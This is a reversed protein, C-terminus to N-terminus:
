QQKRQLLQKALASQTPKYKPKNQKGQTADPNDMIGPFAANILETALEMAAASIQDNQELWASLGPILSSKDAPWNHKRQQRKLEAADDPLGALEAELAQQAAKQRDQEAAQEARQLEANLDRQMAGYGVTTKAGFGLWNFAHEFAAELLPKWANNQSLDLAEHRLMSQNCGVLFSFGTDPPVTLFKIPIPSRSDHPPESKQYYHQQHPTMIEVMLKNGRIQPIVDHFIVAGRRANNTDEAGFVVTIAHETWGHTDGWQGSALERASQRLVGKVGSGPLYPLGYPHLFAFGNELPHDNGLGTTFPATSVADFSATHDNALMNRISAAQRLALAHMFACDTENLATIRNWADKAAADNKEWLDPFRGRKGQRLHDIAADMGENRLLDKLQRGEPSNNSAMRSTHKEQDTRDTWIPLLLGFRLAPSAQNLGDGKDQLYKPIAAIPM